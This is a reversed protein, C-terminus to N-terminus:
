EAEIRAVDKVRRKSDADGFVILRPREEGEERLLYVRGEETVEQATLVASFEDAATVLFLLSFSTGIGGPIHLADTVLNAAPLILKKAFLGLDCCLAMFILQRLNLQRM